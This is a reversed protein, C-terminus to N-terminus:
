ITDYQEGRKRLGSIYVGALIMALGLVHVVGLIEGDFMGAAVAVLPIIYTVMTAFLASTRHALYNFLILAYSTGFISLVALYGLSMWAQDDSRVVEIFDTGLFLFAGALPGTFSFTVLAIQIPHVDFLVSKIINANIGYFLTALVVLLGYGFNFEFTGDSRVVVILITGALGAMVGLIHHWRMVIRFLVAGTLLAFLPTLSNLIGTVASDIRTQAIAFLFPPIGSGLMASLMIVPVKRKPVRYGLLFILPIFSVFALFIRIAGVQYADFAVLGRKIFLFSFGWVIGLILLLGWNILTDRSDPRM